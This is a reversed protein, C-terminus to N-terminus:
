FREFTITPTKLNDVRAVYYSTHFYIGLAKRFLPLCAEYVSIDISLVCPYKVLDLLIEEYQVLLTLKWLKTFVQDIIPSKLYDSIRLRLKKLEM